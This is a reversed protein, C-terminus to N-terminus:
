QFMLPLQCTKNSIQHCAQGSGPLRRAGVLHTRRSAPRRMVEQVTPRPSLLSLWHGSVVMAMRSFFKFRLSPRWHSPARLGVWRSALTLRSVDSDRCRSRPCACVLLPDLPGAARDDRRCPWSLRRRVDGEGSRHWRRQLSGHLGAAGCAFGARRARAAGFGWPFM